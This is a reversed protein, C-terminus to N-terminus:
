REKRAAIVRDVGSLDKVIELIKWAGERFIQAVADRQGFGIEVALVGDDGLHEQADVAMRRYFDLGDEGGDLAMRPEHDRVDPPLTEIEGRAVYPPNSVMVDARFDLPLAALMDGCIFRCRGAVKHATANATAVELAEPSADIAVARAAANRVLLSVCINGSGTGVDLYTVSGAAGSGAGFREATEVLIETEQRPVMVRSDVRFDLSMFERFGLLYALPEGRVRRMAKDIAAHEEREPLHTGFIDHRHAAGCAATVIVSAELDASEIGGKRLLDKVRSYTDASRPRM